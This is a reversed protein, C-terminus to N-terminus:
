FSRPAVSFYLLLLKSKGFKQKKIDSHELRPRKSNKFVFDVEEMKRKHSKGDVQVVEDVLVLSLASELPVVNDSYCVVNLKVGSEHLNYDYGGM